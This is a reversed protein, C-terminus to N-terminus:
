IILTLSYFSLFFQFESANANTVYALHQRKAGPIESANYIIQKSSPIDDYILPSPLNGIFVVFFVIYIIGALEMRTQKTHHYRFIANKYLLYYLQRLYKAM